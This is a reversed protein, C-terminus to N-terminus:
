TIPVTETAYRAIFSNDYFIKYQRSDYRDVMMECMGDAHDGM